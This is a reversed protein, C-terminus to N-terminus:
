GRNRRRICLVLIVMLLVLCIGCLLAVAFTLMSQHMQYEHIAEKLSNDNSEVVQTVIYEDENVRQLTQELRDYRYWNVEGADNKLVLLLFESRAEGQKTYAPVQIEDILLTTQIYHDPLTFSDPKDCVTYTHYETVFVAEEQQFSIGPTLSIVPEQGTEAKPNENEEKQKWESRYVYITYVTRSGNEATVTVAVENNGVALNKGGSVEVCAASDEAIASVIIMDSEYAVTSYYSVIEPSFAPSLSVTQPQNDVLHLAALSSNGSATISPLVTFLKSMGNVSMEAGDTYGYVIPRDYLALECEGQTLARFFIHYTRDQASPSAGIDSIKLFGAGGTICSTASYFEFITDDYSLFAEFDGITADARITLKVEVIDGAHIEETESSLTITASAAHATRAPVVALLLLLGIVGVVAKNWIGRQKNKM